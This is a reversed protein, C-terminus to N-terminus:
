TLTLRLRVILFLITSDSDQQRWDRLFMWSMQQYQNVRLLAHYYVVLKTSLDGLWRTFNVQLTIKFHFCVIIIFHFSKCCYKICNLANHLKVMPKFQNFSIVCREWADLGCSLLSIVKCSTVCVGDSISGCRMTRGGCSDPFSAVTVTRYAAALNVETKWVCYLVLVSGGPWM